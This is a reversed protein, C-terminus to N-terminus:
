SYCSTSMAGRHFKVVRAARYKVCLQRKSQDEIVDGDEAAAAAAAAAYAVPQREGEKTM